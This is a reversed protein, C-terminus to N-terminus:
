SGSAIILLPYNLFLLKFSQSMHCTVYLITVTAHSHQNKKNEFPSLVTPLPEHFLHFTLLLNLLTTKIISTTM